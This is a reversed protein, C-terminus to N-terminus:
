KTSRKHKNPPANENLVFVRMNHKHEWDSILRRKHAEDLFLSIDKKLGGNGAEQAGLMLQLKKMLTTNNYLLNGHRGLVAKGDGKFGVKKLGKGAVGADGADDVPPPPAVDIIPPAVIKGKKAKAGARTVPPSPTKFKAKYEELLKPNFFELKQRVIDIYQNIDNETLGSVKEPAMFFLQFIQNNPLELIISQTSDAVSQIKIINKRSNSSVYLYNGLMIKSTNFRYGVRANRDNLELFENKLELEIDPNIVKLLNKENEGLQKVIPANVKEIQKEEIVKVKNLELKKRRQEKKAVDIIEAYRTLDSAKM